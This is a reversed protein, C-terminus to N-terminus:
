QKIYKVVIKAEKFMDRAIRATDAWSSNWDPEYCVVHTIGSQIIAKACESCPHFTAYMACGKTRIGSKAAAYIANAEAHVFYSLKLPKEHREEVDDNIGKAMGNYGTSIIRRDEDVILAGVKKKRDKSWDAINHALDIFRKDWNAM